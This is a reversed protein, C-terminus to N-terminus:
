KDDDEKWYAQMDHCMVRQEVPPLEMYDGYMQKLYQDYGVPAKYMKGEFEIETSDFRCREIIEKEKRLGFTSVVYKCADFDNEKLRETEANISKERGNIKYPLYFLKKLIVKILNSKEIGNLSVGIQVINSFRKPVSKMIRKAQILDNGMGDMPFIDVSLGENATYPFVIKSKIITRTDVVKNFPIPYFSGMQPTYLKYRCDDSAKMMIEEFKQYDLRPMAIDMDDDWPIFGKHRVAGLLTGGVLYYRINNENCIKVIFDLIDLEIQQIERIDQIKKM